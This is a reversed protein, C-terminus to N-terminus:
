LLPLLVVVHLDVFPDSVMYTARMVLLATMAKLFALLALSRSIWLTKQFQYHFKIHVRNFGQARRYKLVNGMILVNQCDPFSEQHNKFMKKTSSIRIASTVGEGRIKIAFTM